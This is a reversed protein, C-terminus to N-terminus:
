ETFVLSPTEPNKEEGERIIIKSKWKGTNYYLLSFLLGVLSSVTISIWIGREALPTHSLLAALVSRVLVFAFLTQITAMVTDGAGRICGTYVFMLAYPIYSLSVIHLYATGLRIVEPDITFIKILSGSAFYVVVTIIVSIGGTLIAGWRLVERSREFNRAGFNQGTLSSVAIGF